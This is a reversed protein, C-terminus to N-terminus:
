FGLTLTFVNNADFYQNDRYAYDFRFDVDGLAYNIGVGLAFRNLQDETETNMQMNYGGRAFLFNNFNYELGFLAADNELNNSKFNGLLLLSNQENIAATYALGIEISTPLQDSSAERVLFDSRGESNLVNEGLGSGEYQMNSGLNKVAVAFSVGDIGGLRDYQLGIDFSTASASARDISETVLRMTVGVNVAETLARAYTFGLNVFTPSFTKGAEGNMDENTTFPIDGFSISKISIALAGIDEDNYAAAIYNVGIDNFISMYSFQVAALNDMRPVGAPNWYIADLGSTLALNSGFLAMDRAGVPIQLQTAGATGIRDADGAFTPAATFGFILALIIMGCNIKRSIM